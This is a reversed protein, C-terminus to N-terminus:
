IYIRKIEGSPQMKKAELMACCSDKATLANSSPKFFFLFDM